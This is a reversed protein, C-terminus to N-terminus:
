ANEGFYSVRENLRDKRRAFTQREELLTVCAEDQFICLREVMGDWRMCPGFVAFMEHVCKKYKTTKHGRPCVTDFAEQSIKLKPVWSPPREVVVRYPDHDLYENEPEPPPESATSPEDEAEGPVTPEASSPEDAAASARSVSEAESKSDEEPDAETEADADEDSRAEAEAEAPVEEEEEEEELDLEDEEAEEVVPIEIKEVELCAEWKAPDDLDFDIGRVSEGPAGLFTGSQANVWFNVHNWVCELGQYPSADVPYRRATTPEVFVTEDVERKGARVLVWAHVRKGEYKKDLRAETLAPDSEASPAAAGLELTEAAPEAPADETETPGSDPM